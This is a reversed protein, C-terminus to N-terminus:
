KPRSGPTRSPQRLPRESGGKSSVGRRGATATAASSKRVPQQSSAAGLDTRLSSADRRQQLSELPLLPIIPKNVRLPTPARLKSPPPQQPQQQQQLSRFSPQPTQLPASPHPIEDDVLNDAGAQGLVRRSCPSASSSSINYNRGVPDSGIIGSALNQSNQAATNQSGTSNLGAPATTLPRQQFALPQLDEAAAQEPEPRINRSTNPRVSNIERQLPQQQLTRYLPVFTRQWSDESSLRSIPGYYLKYLSLEEKLKHLERELNERQRKEQSYAYELQYCKALAKQQESSRVGDLDGQQLQLLLCKDKLKENQKLLDRETTQTKALEREARDLKSKYDKVEARLQEREGLWNFGVTNFTQQQGCRRTKSSYYLKKYRKCRRQVGKVKNVLDTAASGGM